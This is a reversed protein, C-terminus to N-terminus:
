NETSIGIMVGLNSVTNTLGKEPIYMRSVFGDLFLANQCGKEKFFKAFDYFNIAEKSIAFIVINNPLIGVGNRININRSDDEFTRNIVGDVVIMPGSQTAYWVNKQSKFDNTKCIGVENKKSIYFIGNPNLYFNGTASRTNISALTKGEQIFLGLPAYNAMYMGGNMAFVLKRNKGNLLTKLNTFSKLIQGEDDKWFLQINQTKPNATYSIIKANISAARNDQAHLGLSALVYFVFIIINLKM